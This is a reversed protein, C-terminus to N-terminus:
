LRPHRLAAARGEGVPKQQGSVLSGLGKEGHGLGPERGPSYRLLHLKGQWRNWVCSDGLSLGHSILHSSRALGGGGGLPRELSEGPHLAGAAHEGHGCEEGM